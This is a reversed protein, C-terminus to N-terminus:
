IRIFLLRYGYQLSLDFVAYLYQSEISIYWKNSKAFNTNYCTTGIVQYVKKYVNLLACLTDEDDESIPKYMSFVIATGIGLESISLVQLISSFLSNLGLYESGLVKIFVTRCIFPM